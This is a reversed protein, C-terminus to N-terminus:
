EVHGKGKAKLALEEDKSVWKKKLRNLAETGSFGPVPVTIQSVWYVNGVEVATNPHM